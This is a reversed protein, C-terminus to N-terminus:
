DYRRRLATTLRETRAMGDRIARGREASALTEVARAIRALSEEVSPRTTDDDNM